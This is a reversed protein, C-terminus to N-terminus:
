CGRLVLDKKKLRSDPSDTMKILFHWIGTRGSLRFFYLYVRVKDQLMVNLFLIHVLCLALHIHRLAVGEVRVISFLPMIAKRNNTSRYTSWDTWSRIGTTLHNGCCLYEVGACLDKTSFGRRKKADYVWNSNFKSTNIDTVPLNNRNTETDLTLTNKLLDQYGNKCWM